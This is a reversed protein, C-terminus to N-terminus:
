EGQVNKSAQSLPRKGEQLAVGFEIQLVERTKSRMGRDMKWSTHIMKIPLSYTM